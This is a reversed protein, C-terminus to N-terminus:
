PQDSSSSSTAIPRLVQAVNRDITYIPFGDVPSSGAGLKKYASEERPNLGLVSLELSPRESKFRRDVLRFSPISGALTHYTARLQVLTRSHQAQSNSIM